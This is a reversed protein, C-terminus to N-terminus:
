TIFLANTLRNILNHKVDQTPKIEGSAEEGTWNDSIEPSVFNARYRLDRENNRQVTTFKIHSAAKIVHLLKSPVQQPTFFLFVRLVSVPPPASTSQVVWFPELRKLALQTRVCVCVHVCLIFSILLSCM